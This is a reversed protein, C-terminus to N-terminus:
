KVWYKDRLKQIEVEEALERKERGKEGRIKLEEIPLTILELSRKELYETTNKTPDDLVEELLAHLTFGIKPGPKEKTVEMLHGGNIKLMGVTIPDRMAEEVMSKYKRFRFPQEKPRGTGIRDCIRLDLLDEINERGVNRITRRVASLTIQDPDSFFMHWRVLKTVKEVTEKPFKLDKLIKNAIRAGVVEHGHFTWDKKEDSWRRTEPKSVDHFLGALRLDLSWKKDAAHQLTRLNHEFVDYSHAQNQDVGIGREIDPIVYQLIGLKHAVGLATMPENSLLIRIFEDRIREKSIHSLQAVYKVIAETTSPEIAFNLEASLRIARLIRLADEKFREVPNGVARIVCSDIDDQGGYPDVLDGKVAHYAIANITFDRRKLDDELNNSFLVSDPRRSDSYMGEIRYPTVEVIKLTQDETDKNVVGVTGYNNEYFTDEFLEEIQEPRANTTIDWDKPKKNLLLDRVCGGVLFAEFGASELSKTVRSVENPISFLPKKTM